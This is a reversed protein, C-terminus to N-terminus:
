CDAAWGLMFFHTSATTAADRVEQIYKYIETDTHLGGGFHAGTNVDGFVKEGIKWIYKQYM